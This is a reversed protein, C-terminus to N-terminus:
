PCHGILRRMRDGRGVAGLPAILDKQGAIRGSLVDHPIQAAEIVHTGESNAVAVRTGSADEKGISHGAREVHDHVGAAAAAKSTGVAPTGVYSAADDASASTKAADPKPKDSPTEPGAM